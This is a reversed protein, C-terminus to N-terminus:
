KELGKITSSVKLIKINSKCMEFSARIDNLSKREVALILKKDKELFVPTAKAYGLIGVYDLIIKEVESKSKADILLYRRKIKDSPKIKM